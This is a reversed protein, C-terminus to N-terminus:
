IRLWSRWGGKQFAEVAKKHEDRKSKDSEGSAEMEATLREVEATLEESDGIKERLKGFSARVKSAAERGYAGAPGMFPDHKLRSMTQKFKEDELDAYYLFLKVTEEMDIGEDKDRRIGDGLCTAFDNEWAKGQYLNKYREDFILKAVRGIKGDTGTLAALRPYAVTPDIDFLTALVTLTLRDLYSLVYELDKRPDNERRRKIVGKVEETSIEKFLKQILEGVMHFGAFEFWGPM